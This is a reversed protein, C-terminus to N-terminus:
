YESRFLHNREVVVKLQRNESCFLIVCFTQEGEMPMDSSQCPFSSSKGTMGLIM